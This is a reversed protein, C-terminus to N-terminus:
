KTPHIKEPLADELGKPAIEQIKQPVKSPGTAHSVGGSSQAAKDSGAGTDHVSNPLAKEVGAPVKEQVKGPVKSSNVPDVAHSQNTSSMRKSRLIFSLINNNSLVLM